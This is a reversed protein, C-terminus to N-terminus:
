KKKQIRRTERIYFYGIIISGIIDILAFIWTYLNFFMSM